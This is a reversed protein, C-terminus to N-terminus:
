EHRAQRWGKLGGADVAEIRWGAEVEGVVGGYREWWGEMRTGLGGGDVVRGGVERVERGRGGPKEDVVGVISTCEWPDSAPSSGAVEQEVLLRALRVVSSLGAGGGGIERSM